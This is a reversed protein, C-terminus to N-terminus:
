PYNEKVTEEPTESGSNTSASETEYNSNDEDVNVPNAAESHWCPSPDELEAIQRSDEEVGFRCPNVTGVFFFLDVADSHWDEEKEGFM